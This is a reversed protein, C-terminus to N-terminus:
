FELFVGRRFVARINFVFEFEPPLLIEFKQLAKEARDFDAFINRFRDRSAKYSKRQMRRGTAIAECDDCITRPCPHSHTCSASSVFRYETLRSTNM